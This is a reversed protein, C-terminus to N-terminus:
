VVTCLSIREWRRRAHGETKYVWVGPTKDRTRLAIKVREVPGIYYLGDSYSRYFVHGRDTIKEGLHM